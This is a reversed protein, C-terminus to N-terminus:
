EGRQERTMTLIKVGGNFGGSESVSRVRELSIQNLLSRKSIEHHTVSCIRYKLKLFPVPFSKLIAIFCTSLSFVTSTFSAFMRVFRCLSFKKREGKEESTHNKKKEWKGEMCLNFMLGLRKILIQLARRSAEGSKM